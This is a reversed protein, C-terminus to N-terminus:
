LYSILWDITVYVFPCVHDMVELWHRIKTNYTVGEIPVLVAWNIFTIVLNWEWTKQHLFTAWKWMCWVSQLETEKSNLIHGIVLVTFLTTTM